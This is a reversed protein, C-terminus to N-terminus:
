ISIFQANQIYIIKTGLIKELELNQKLDIDFKYYVKENYILGPFELNDFENPTSHFFLKRDSTEEIKYKKPLGSNLYVLKSYVDQPLSVDSDIYVSESVGINIKGYHKSFIFPIKNSSYAIVYGLNTNILKYNEKNSGKGIFIGSKNKAKILSYGDKSSDFPVITKCDNQIDIVFDSLCIPSVQDNLNSINVANLESFTNRNYPILKIFSNLLNLNGRYNIKSNLFNELSKENQFSLYIEPPLITNQNTELNKVRIQIAGIESFPKIIECLIEVFELSRLGSLFFSSKFHQPSSAIQILALDSPQYVYEDLSGNSASQKNSVRIYGLARLDKIISISNVDDNDTKYIKKYFRAKSIIEELNTNNLEVNDAYVATAIIRTLFDEKCLLKLKSTDIKYTNSVEGIKITNFPINYKSNVEPQEFENMLTLKINKLLEEGDAIIEATISFINTVDLNYNQFYQNLDISFKGYESNKNTVVINDTIRIKDTKLENSSIIHYKIQLQVNDVLDFNLRPLLFYPYIKDHGTNKINYGGFFELKIVESNPDIKVIKGKHFIFDFPVSSLILCDGIELIEINKFFSKIKKRNEANGIFITKKFAKPKETFLFFNNNTSFGDIVEGLQQFLMAELNLLSFVSIGDNEIILDEFREVIISRYWGFEHSKTEIEKGNIKIYISEPFSSQSQLNPRFSYKKIINNEGLEIQPYLVVESKREVKEKKIKVEEAFLAGEIIKNIILKAPVITKSDIRTIKRFRILIENDSYIPRKIQQRRVIEQIEILHKNSFLSHYLFVGVYKNPGKSIDYINHVNIEFKNKISKKLRVLLDFTHARFKQDSGLMIKKDPENFVGDKKSYAYIVLIIFPLYSIRNSSELKENCIKFNARPEEILYSLLHELSSFKEFFTIRDRKSLINRPQPHCESLIKHPDFIKLFDEEGGTGNYLQDFLNSETYLVIEQNSRNDNFFHNDLKKSWELYNM